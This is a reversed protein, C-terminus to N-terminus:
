GGRARPAKGVGGAPAACGSGLLPRLLLDHGAWAAWQVFAVYNAVLVPVAAADAAAARPRQLPATGGSGAHARGESWDAAAPLSAKPPQPLARSAARLVLPPLLPLVVPAILALTLARGVSASLPTGDYPQVQDLHKIFSPDVGHYRAGAHPPRTPIPLPTPRGTNPPSPDLLMAPHRMRM